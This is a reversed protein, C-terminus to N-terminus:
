KQISKSVFIPQIQKKSLFLKESQECLEMRAAIEGHARM